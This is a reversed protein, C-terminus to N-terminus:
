LPRVLGEEIGTKLSGFCDRAMAGYKMLESYKEESKKAFNQFYWEIHDSLDVSKYQKFNDFSAIYILIFKFQCLNTLYMM